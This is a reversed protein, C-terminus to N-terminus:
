GRYGGSIFFYTNSPAYNTINLCIDGNTAIYYWYKDGTGDDNVLSGSHEYSPRKSINGVIVSQNQYSNGSSCRFSFMTCYSLNYTVLNAFTWGSAATITPSSGSTSDIPSLFYPNGGTGRVVWGNEKPVSEMMYYNNSQSYTHSGNIYPLGHYVTSSTMLNYSNQLSAASTNQRLYIQDVTNTDNGIPMYNTSYSTRGLGGESVGYVTNNNGSKRILIGIM